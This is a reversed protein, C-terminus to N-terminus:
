GEMKEIGEHEMHQLVEDIKRQISEGKAPDVTTSIIHGCKCKYRADVLGRGFMREMDFVQEEDIPDFATPNYTAALRNCGECGQAKCVLCYAGWYRKKDKTM